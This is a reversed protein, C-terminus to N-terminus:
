SNILWKNNEEILTLQEDVEESKEKSYYKLTVSVIVSEGIEEANKITAKIKTNKGYENELMVKMINLNETLEDITMESKKEETFCKYVSEYQLNQISLYYKEVIKKQARYDASFLLILVFIIVTFICLIIGAIKRASIREKMGKSEKM